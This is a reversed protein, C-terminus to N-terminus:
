WWKVSGSVIRASRRRASRGPPSRATTSIVGLAHHGERFERQARIISYYTRPEVESKFRDGDLDLDAMARNTLAQIAGVNWNDGVKGTLKAAGLIRSRLEGQFGTMIALSVLLITVGVIVGLTSIASIVFIFLQRQAFLYRLAIRLEFSM